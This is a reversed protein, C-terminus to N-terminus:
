ENKMMEELKKKMKEKRMAASVYYMSTDLRSHGLVSSIEYVNYNFVEALHTARSRRLAHSAYPRIIDRILKRAWSEKIEFIREAGVPLYKLWMLIIKYLLREEKLVFPYKWAKKKDKTKFNPMKWFIGEDNILFNKRLLGQTVRGDTHEYELLEGIRSGSAYQLAILARTRMEMKARLIRLMQPYSIYKIEYASKPADM